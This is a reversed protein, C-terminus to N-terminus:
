LVGLPLIPEFWVLDSYVHIARYRTTYYLSQGISLLKQGLWGRQMAESQQSISHEQNLKGTFLNVLVCLIKTEM